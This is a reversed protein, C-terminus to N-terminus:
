AKWDSQSFHECEIMKRRCSERYIEALYTDHKDAWGPENIAFMGAIQFLPSTLIEGERKEQEETSAQDTNELTPSNLAMSEEQKYAVESVWALFLTEPTQNHQAAYMALKSYLDDPIQFEHSM